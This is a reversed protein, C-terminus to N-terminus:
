VEVFKLEEAVAVLLPFCNLVVDILPADIVVQPFEGTPEGVYGAVVRIRAHEPIPVDRTVAFLFGSMPRSSLERHRNEVIWKSVRASLTETAQRVRTGVAQRLRTPSITTGHTQTGPGRYPYQGYLSQHSSIV